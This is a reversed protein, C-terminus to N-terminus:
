WRAASVPIVQGAASHDSGLPALTALQGQRTTGGLTEEALVTGGWRADAPGVERAIEFGSVPAAKEGNEPDPAIARANGLASKGLAAMDPDIVVPATQLVIQLVAATGGRM